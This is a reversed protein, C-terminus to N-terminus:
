TNKTRLTVIRPNLLYILHRPTRHHMHGRPDSDTGPLTCPTRHNQSYAPGRRKQHCPIKKQQKKVHMFFILYGFDKIEDFTTIEHELYGIITAHTEM